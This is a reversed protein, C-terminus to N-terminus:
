TYLILFTKATRLEKGHPERSRLSLLSLLCREVMGTWSPGEPACDVAEMSWGCYQSSLHVTCLGPLAHDLRNERCATPPPAQMCPRGTAGVYQKKKKKKKKVERGGALCYASM